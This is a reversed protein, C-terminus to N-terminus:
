RGVRFHNMLPIVGAILRNIQRIVEACLADDQKPVVHGTLPVMPEALM